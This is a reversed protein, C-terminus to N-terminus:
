VIKANRVLDSNDQNYHGIVYQDDKLLSQQLEKIHEKVLARPTINYKKCVAAAKGVAQGVTSLTGMVRTSGFAVHTTSMCRSAVFLNSVNKSYCSRMPIEYISKLEYHRTTMDDSFFGEMAHLDISWGGHGIVDEFETQGVIDNETLIHDGVLRRSERKGPVPSVYELDFTESPYKGSNKIYDWVSYVLERHEQIITEAESIQNKGYGTEYFWQMRYGEYRSDGPIRDPIERYKLAKMVNTNDAFDPLTFPAKRGTDKSYFSLTSLIVHSDSEQPAIKENFEDKSERGVRFEAGALYGVTGDGTDDLFLPSIFEFHKESGIQSGCISTISNDCDTKVEDINTNLFLQINKEKLVWDM